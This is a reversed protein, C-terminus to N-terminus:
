SRVGVCYPVAVAVVVSLVLLAFGLDATRRPRFRRPLM